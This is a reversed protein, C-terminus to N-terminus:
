QCTQEEQMMELGRRILRTYVAEFQASTGTDDSPFHAPCAYFPRGDIEVCRWDTTVNAALFQQKRCLVCVVTVNTFRNPSAMPRMPSPQRKRM